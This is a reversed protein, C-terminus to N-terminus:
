GGFIKFLVKLEDGDSLVTEWKAPKGNVLFSLMNKESETLKKDAEQQAKDMFLAVTSEEALEYEGQRMSNMIDGCYFKIEAKM